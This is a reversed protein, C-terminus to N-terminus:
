HVKKELDSLWNEQHEVKEELKYLKEMANNHKEVKKELACIRWLVMSGFGGLTIGYIILQVVFEVSITM